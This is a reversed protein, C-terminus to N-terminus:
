SPRRFVATIGERLRRPLLPEAAIFIRHKYGGADFYNATKWNVVELAQARAVGVLEDVTLERIHGPDRLGTEAMMQYPNRGLVVAVRKTISVANPTQVVLHGGPRLRQSLWRIVLTPAVALHELVEALVVVDYAAADPASPANPLETLDLEHHTEEARPPFRPDAFGLTDVRAGPLQRLLQTQAFPGVDLLRPQPAGGVLGSVIDLLVRYRRRHFAVYARVVEDDTELLRRLDAEGV